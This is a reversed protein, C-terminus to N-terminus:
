GHRYGKCHMLEHELLNLGDGSLVHKAEDESWISYIWCKQTQQFQFACAALTPNKEFPIACINHLSAKNHVVVWEYSESPPFRQEAWHYETCGALLLLLLWRM